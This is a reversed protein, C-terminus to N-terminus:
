QTELFMQLLQKASFGKTQRLLETVNKDEVTLAM